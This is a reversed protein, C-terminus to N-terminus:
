WKKNILMNHICQNYYVHSTVKITKLYYIASFSQFNSM